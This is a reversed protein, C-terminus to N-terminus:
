REVLYLYDEHVLDVEEQHRKIYSATFPCVPKVKVGAARAAALAEQVLKSGVGKGSFERPVATHRFTWVQDAQRVDLVALESSGPLTAEFRRAAENFTVEVDLDSM